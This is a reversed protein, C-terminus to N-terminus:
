SVLVRKGDYTVEITRKVENNELGSFPAGDSIWLQSGDSTVGWGEGPIRHLRNENFQSWYWCTRLDGPSFMSGAMSSRSDRPLISDPLQTVERDGYIALRLSLSPNVTAQNVWLADNWILLGTFHDRDIALRRRSM